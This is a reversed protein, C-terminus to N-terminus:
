FNIPTVLTGEGQRSVKFNADLFIGAVSADVTKIQNALRDAFEKQFAPTVQRYFLHEYTWFTYLGNQINSVSYPVGNWKLEKAGNPIAITDADGPTLYGIYYGATANPYANTNNGDSKYAGPGLIHTFYPALNAGTDVGNNGPFQSDVGSVSTVPFLDHSTVTGGINASTAGSLGTRRFQKVVANVGLGSEAFAVYRQGADLNRGTAFVIQNEHTVDGTFFSLPATGNSWLYQALQPTINDGPIGASASWKLGVVSVIHDQPTLDEYTIGNYTGVFPSTSQFNTSMAIHPIKNDSPTLPVSSTGSVTASDDIFAVTQSGAVAAIGGTAGIYATKIIVQTSVSNSDVYTGRFIGFNIKTFDSGKDGVFTFGPQLLHSIATNTTARDGNAGAIYIYEDASATAALSLAAVGLILQTLIKM